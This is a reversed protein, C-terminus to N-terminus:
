EEIIIAAAVKRDESALINYTRCAAASDMVEYGIGLGILAALQQPGPFRLTKGTGLLVLETALGKLPQLTAEDVMAQEAVPWERILATPTIIFSKQLTIRGDEDQGEDGPLANLTVEGEAYAYISYYGETEERTFKM